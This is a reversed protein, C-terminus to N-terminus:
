SGDRWFSESGFGSSVRKSRSLPLSGDSLTAAEAAASGAVLDPAMRTELIQGLFLAMAGGVSLALLVM